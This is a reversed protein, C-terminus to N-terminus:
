FRNHRRPIEELDVVKVGQNEIGSKIHDLSSSNDAYGIYFNRTLDAGKWSLLGASVKKGSWLIKIEEM